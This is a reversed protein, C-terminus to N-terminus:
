SGQKIALVAQNRLTRLLQLEKEPIAIGGPEDRDAYILAVPNGKINLPFLVFSHAPVAKRYWDPIRSAIKPDDIDSILLDVGKSTAAHFIDPTFSLPFRFARAVENADPGFGFRGQMVGAKADRICLVVRKFGMARYMTELIIRLIDNLKFGEVLTNSIDQIGATLVSQADIAGGEGMGQELPDPVGLVTGAAMENVAQEEAGIQDGPAAKAFQRMQKGFTTQQLNFHIVRAFDAVEEVARQVTQHVEKQDCTIAEAFRAMTKKLERERDEPTAEAIVDCLENAFGSLVRLKDEQQVPKRIAGAPLRRMTGVILTPFGWQRAVAIGMEEFSIGLVQIAAKEESFERQAMVRRIEDAEEPFYYQSLLRGLSHFLACIFSQELDRMQATAGIDKALVGALNARLFDEKLQNANGKNQLHEFLLVTIAINRVAEFGLVIVARSVTSITGGGAPRFYASNVLRLLKNTLAFDKLITNSLKDISEKESNAIKNIASVSESLAPFDSKHRMRRLLFDITSQRSGDSEVAEEEPNLYNELAEAFQAASQFRLAPDRAVAKLLIPRLRDDVGASAPIELDQTTIRQLVAKLSDGTFARQGVLMEYLIVGASFIDSRESIERRLVYEPAMYAPTGTVRDSGEVAGDIRTAIGFDMVKPTGDDDLLINSPKLDRHIIGQAHAHVVADLIRHLLTVAKVPPLAGSQKLFEALNTGPVYEFVLYLDGAQEGAEFIPVINPHRMRGVARAETLLAQNQAPDPRAFHLTKIAIERQLQPDFGLYVVSQAGRGLERRVEFRGIRKM